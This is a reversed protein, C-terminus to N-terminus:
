AIYKIQGNFNRPNFQGGLPWTSTSIGYGSFVQMRSDSSFVTNTTTGNSYNLNGGSSVIFFCINQNTTMSISVTVPLNVLTNASGTVSASGAFTWLTSDTFINADTLTGYRWYLSVTASSLAVSPYIDFGTVTLPSLAKIANLIGIQSNGAATGANLTYSTGAAPKSKGWFSSLNMQGSAPIGSLGAPVFGSAAGAYYNTMFFPATGGFVSAVNSLGLAGSSPLTSM